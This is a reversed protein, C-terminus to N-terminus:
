LSDAKYYTRCRENFMKFSKERLIDEVNLEAQLLRLKRQEAKFNKDVQIDHSDSDRIKDRIEKISKVQEAQAVICKTIAQQRYDYGKKLKFYMDKCNAEAHEQGKFSQTPIMTNLAYVLKDDIDRLKKLYDQFQLFDSCDVELSM